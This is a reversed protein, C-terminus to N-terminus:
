ANKTPESNRQLCSTLVEILDKTGLNVYKKHSAVSSHGAMRMAASVPLNMTHWNTIACHRFDHFTFKEM